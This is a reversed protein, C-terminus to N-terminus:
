INELKFFIFDSLNPFPLFRRQDNSYLNNDYQKMFYSIAPFQCTVHKQAMKIWTPTNNESNLMKNYKNYFYLTSQDQKHSIKMQIRMNNERTNLSGSHILNANFLLADGANCLVSESYDTLNINNKYLSTHSATIVDLCKDMNELYLIITYSPYKQEPNLLDGNYDRHCTHFQSKKIVFVYDNFEYDYSHDGLRNRIKSLIDPSQIIYEKAKKPEGNQIYEKLTSIENASLLSSIICIGDKQLNYVKKKRETFLSFLRLVISLLICVILLIIIHIYLKNKMFFTNKFLTSLKM